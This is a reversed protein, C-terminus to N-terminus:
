FSSENKGDGSKGWSVTISGKWVCLAAHLPETFTTTFTHLHRMLPDCPAYFCIQGAEYDVYVRVRDISFNDPLRMGKKAHRVSYQNGERDLCWSKQNYGILSPDERRDISPYCIGVIWDESARVDVDWYHRGSSFGRSSLVQPYLFRQPIEPRNQSGEARSATRKDDSIQVKNSATNVDLLIDVADQTYCYVNVGKLIDSLGTHLTRSIGAVDLDGGDKVQKYLREGYNDGKDTRYCDKRDPEQLVTLPDTMNLVEELRCMKKSLKDKKVELQQIFDDYSQSIRETRKSVEALVKKELDDLQRRLDRLLAAVRKTQNAANQQSARRCKKLSDITKETEKKIATTKQLDNRVREKKKESAEELMEVKHGKHKGDLRCSVCICAADETCFYELIKKHLFCKRHTLSTTPDSLVHEPSKSHVKLHNICLFAECLFCFKVAPVSTHICHTCYVGCDELEPQTSLISEVINCLTINKQLAPRKQFTERCDPCFYGASGEQTDLVRDICGRCFNHGCRLTVPDTYISLCISCELEERLAVSAM